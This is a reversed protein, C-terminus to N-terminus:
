SERSKELLMTKSKVSYTIPEDTDVIVSVSGISFSKPSTPPSASLVFGKFVNSSNRPPRNSAMSPAGSKLLSDLTEMQDELGFGSAKKAKRFLFEAPDTM